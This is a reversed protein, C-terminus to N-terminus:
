NNIVFVHDISDIAKEIDLTTPLGIKLIDSLEFIDFILMGEESIFRKEM